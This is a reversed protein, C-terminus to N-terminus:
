NNWHLWGLNEIRVEEGAPPASDPEVHLVRCDILLHEHVSTLGLQDLDIPGLVTHIPM